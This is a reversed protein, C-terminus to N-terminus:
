PCVQGVQADWLNGLSKYTLGNDPADTVFIYRANREKALGITEAAAEENPVTHVVHMFRDAPYNLTWAPFEQAKYTQYDYEFTMVMDIFDMYRQDPTWGPNLAVLAEKDTARIYNAIDRYYPITKEQSAANDLFIGDVGYWNFYKNIEDRVKAPDRTGRDTIVYGIVRVNAQQAELTINAWDQNYKLDPGSMPNLIMIGTAPASKIAQDWHTWPDFFAPVVVQQCQTGGGDGEPPASNGEQGWIEVEALAGLYRDDRPNDFSFRLYRMKADFKREQWRKAPGNKVKDIMQWHKGDLSRQITMEDAHGSNSFQWKVASVATVAALEFVVWGSKESRSGRTRWSTGLNNDSARQADTSNASQRINVIELPNGAALSPTPTLSIALGTLLLAVVGFCRPAAMTFCITRM